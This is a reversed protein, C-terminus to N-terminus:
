VRILRSPGSSSPCIFVVSSDWSARLEGKNRYDEKVREQKLLPGEFMNGGTFTGEVSGEGTGETVVLGGETM